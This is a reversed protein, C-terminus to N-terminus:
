APISIGSLWPNVKGGVVVGRRLEQAAREALVDAEVYRCLLAVDSPKFHGSDCSSVLEVFAKREPAGLHAPPKLRSPRGDVRVVSLAESSKRGRTM